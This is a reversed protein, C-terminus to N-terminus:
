KIPTPQPHGATNFYDNKFSKPLDQFKTYTPTRKASKSRSDSQSMFNKEYYNRHFESRHKSDPNQPPAPAPTQYKSKMKPPCAVAEGETTLQEILHPDSQRPTELDTKKSIQSYINLIRAPGHKRKKFGSGFQTQDRSTDKKSNSNMDNIESCIKKCNELITGIDGANPFEEELGSGTHHRSNL